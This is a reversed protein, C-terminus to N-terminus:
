VFLCIIYLSFFNSLVSWKGKNYLKYDGCNQLKPLIIHHKNQM